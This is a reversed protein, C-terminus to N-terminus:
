GNARIFFGTLKLIYGLATEKEMEGSVKMTLVMMGPANAKEKKKARLIWGEKIIVQIM